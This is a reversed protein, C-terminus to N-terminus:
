MKILGRGRTETELKCRGRKDPSALTRRVKSAILLGIIKPGGEVSISVLIPFTM